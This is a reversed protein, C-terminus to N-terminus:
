CHRMVKQTQLLVRQKALKRNTLRQLVEPPDIAHSRCLDFRLGLEEDLQEIQRVFFGPWDPTEPELRVRFKKAKEQSTRPWDYLFNSTM